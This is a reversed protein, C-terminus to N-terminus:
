VAEVKKLANVAASIIAYPGSQKSVFQRICEPWVNCDIEGLDGGSIVVVPLESFFVDIYEAIEPGKFSQLYYDLIAVDYNRLEAFTTMESLSPYARAPIGMARALGLVLACFQPDDDILLVGRKRFLGKPPTVATTVDSSTATATVTIPQLTM